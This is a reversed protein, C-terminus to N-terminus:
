MPKGAIFIHDVWLYDHRTKANGGMGGWIPTWSRGYFGSRSDIGDSSNNASTRFKVDTYEHTLTLGSGDGNDLWFRLVGNAQDVTNLIMQVEYRHWMGARVRKTSRNATMSRNVNNQQRIDFAWSSMVSTNDGNGRAIWYVQNPVKAGKQGVGWYGLLKMGPGPTEFDATPIRFWGSEYFERYETPDGSPGGWGNVTGIGSGVSLGSPFRFQMGNSASVPAAGDSIITLNSSGSNYWTGAILGTGSSPLATLSHEAFRSYDSPLHPMGAVPTVSASAVNVTASSSLTTGYINTLKARVTYTGGGTPATYLGATSITGGSATYTVGAPSTTSGDSMTATVSFQQRM